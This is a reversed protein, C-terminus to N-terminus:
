STNQLHKQAVMYNCILQVPSKGVVFFDIEIEFLTKFNIAVMCNCILQM